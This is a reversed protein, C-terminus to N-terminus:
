WKMKKRLENIQAVHHKGHWAYYQLLNGLSVQQQCAPHYATRQWVADEVDKIAAYWRIHLAFLLTTSINVPLVKVDKLEAWLSENYTKVTPNEETMCLKFRVYANIHSDALHHVLQHVTWGGTRYPTHLQAEDLNSIAAELTNPLFQIDALATQKVLISFDKAVLKGIPYQNGIEM